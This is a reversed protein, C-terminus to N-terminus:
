FYIDEVLSVTQSGFMPVRRNKLQKDDVLRMVAYTNRVVVAKGDPPSHRLMPEFRLTAKGNMDADADATLRKLENNVTIYDGVMLFNQSPTCGRIKLLGGTQNAGDVVPAGGALGRPQRWVHDGLKVRGAAGRLQLLFVELDRQKERPLNRFVLSAQWTCAPFELTQSAGTFPSEFQLTKFAPWFEQENPELHVPWTLVDSM